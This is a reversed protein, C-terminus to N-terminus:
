SQRYNATPYQNFIRHEKEADQRYEKWCLLYGPWYIAIIGAWALVNKIKNM